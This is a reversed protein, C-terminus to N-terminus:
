GGAPCGSGGSMGASGVGHLGRAVEVAPLNAAVSGREKEEM